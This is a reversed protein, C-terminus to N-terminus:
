KERRDIAPPLKLRAVGEQGFWSGPMEVRLEKADKRHREFGAVVIVTDGPNIFLQPLGGKSKDGERFATRTLPRYVVGAEDHLKAGPFATLEGTGKDMTKGTLEKWLEPNAALGAVRIRETKATSKVKLAIGTEPVGDFENEMVFLVDLSVSGLTLPGKTADHWPVAPKVAPAQEPGNKGHVAQPAEVAPANGNAAPAPPPPTPKQCGVAALVVTHLLLTGRRM